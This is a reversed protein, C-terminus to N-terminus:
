HFVLGRGNETSLTEAGISVASHKDEEREWLAGLGNLISAQVCDHTDNTVRMRAAGTVRFGRLDTSQGRAGVSQLVVVVGPHEELFELVMDAVRVARGVEACETSFGKAPIVCRPAQGKHTGGTLAYTPLIITADRAGDFISTEWHVTHFNGHTSRAQGSAHVHGRKVCCGEADKSGDGMLVAEIPWGENAAQVIPSTSSETARIGPSGSSAVEHMPTPAVAISSLADQPIRRAASSARGDVLSARAQKSTLDLRRSSLATVRKLMRAMAKSIPKLPGKLARAVKRRRANRNRKGM